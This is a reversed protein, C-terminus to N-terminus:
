LYHSYRRSYPMQMLYNGFCAESPPSGIKGGAMLVFNVMKTKTVPEFGSIQYVQAGDVTVRSIKTYQFYLGRNAPAPGQMNFALDIHALSQPDMRIFRCACLDIAELVYPNTKNMHKASIFATNFMHQQTWATTMERIDLSVWAKAATQMTIDVDDIPLPVGQDFISQMISRLDFEVIRWANRNTPDDAGLLGFLRTWNENLLTVEGPEAEDDEIPIQIFKNLVRLEPDGLREGEFGCDDKLKVIPPEFEEVIATALPLRFDSVLGDVATLQGLFSCSMMGLNTAVSLKITAKGSATVTPGRLEFDVLGRLRLQRMTWEIHNPYNTLRLNMSRPYDDYPTAHVPTVHTAKLYYELHDGTTFTAYQSERLDRHAAESFGYRVRSKQSFWIHDVLFQIRDKALNRVTAIEKGAPEYLVPQEDYIPCVVVDIKRIFLRKGFYPRMLVIRKKTTNANIRALTVFDRPDLVFVEFTEHRGKLEEALEWLMGNSPVFVLMSLFRFEKSQITERVVDTAWQQYAPLGVIASQYSSQPDEHSQGRQLRVHYPEFVQGRELDRQHPKFLLCNQALAGTTPYTTVLVISPGKETMETDHAIAYCALEQDVSEAHFDTLVIHTAKKLIGLARESDLGIDGYTMHLLHHLPLPISDMGAVYRGVTREKGLTKQTFESARSSAAQTQHICVVFAKDQCAIGLVVASSKGIQPPGTVLALREKGDIIHQMKEQSPEDWICRKYLNKAKEIGM